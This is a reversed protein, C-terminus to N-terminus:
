GILQVALGEQEAAQAQQRDATWFEMELAPGATRLALAAALHIADYARLTYRFLLDQAREFIAESLPVIHYRRRLHLTFELWASDREAASTQGTRVKLALTSAMEVPLLRSVLLSQENSQCAAVVRASGAEATVYRRALASTDWFIDPVDIHARLVCSCSPREM